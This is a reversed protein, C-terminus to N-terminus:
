RDLAPGQDRYRRWIRRVTDRALHLERAIGRLSTGGQHRRVIAQRVPVPVPCPM